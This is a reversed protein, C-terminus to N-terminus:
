EAKPRKRVVLHAKEPLAYALDNEVALRILIQKQTQKRCDIDVIQDGVNGEFTVEFPGSGAAIAQVVEALPREKFMMTIPTDAGPLKDLAALEEPTLAAASISFAVAVFFVALATTKM